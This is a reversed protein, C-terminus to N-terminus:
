RVWALFPHGLLAQVFTGAIALLVLGSVAYVALSRQTATPRPTMKWLLFAFLPVIQIAHIAIFHAIRLDGATTSWNTFPLGPGGDSAGVTHSGRALMYGGVANGLLFIVVSLRVALVFAADAIRIRERKGCFAALIWVLIATNVSVMWTTMQAILWDTSGQGGAFQTSRWAQASLCLMEVTITATMTRRALKSQWAPIRLRGLFLSLTWVFTSFSIAFKIPKFWPNVTAIAGPDLYAFMALIPVSLVLMWGFRSLLQDKADLTSFFARVMSPSFTQAASRLLASLWERSKTIEVPYIQQRPEFILTGSLTQENITSGRLYTMHEDM